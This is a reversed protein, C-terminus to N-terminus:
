WPSEALYPSCTPSRHSDSLAAARTTALSASTPLRVYEAGLAHCVRGSPDGDPGRPRVTCAPCFGRRQCSFPLLLEKYCTDCGLRLFGHALIGCQLHDYFERRVYAPLDTVEPDDDLLALFTELYVAIVKYLVTRSPARPEYTAMAPARLAGVSLM